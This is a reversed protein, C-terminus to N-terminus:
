QPSGFLVFAAWYYPHDYPRAAARGDPITPRGRRPGVDRTAAQAIQEPSAGTLRNKDENTLARLWAQAERLAALKPLPQGPIYSVGDIQRSSKSEGLLNAYFRSMLLSTATDDVKWLSAVVTEAGAAFFGLPLAMVSDGKAVGRGTDCASLTVLETGKLRGPWQKILEKLTLFGIDDVTPREPKTLALSAEYPRDANGSLGHTALHLFRPPNSVVSERLRVANADDDLLLTVSNGSQELLMAIATAERRMGPLPTLSAGYLRHQDLRSAVASQEDGSRDFFAMSRLGEAPPAQSPVVGMRGTALAVEITQGERWVEVTVPREDPEVGRTTVAEATAQIAPGLDARGALAHEGYRRLVDGRQLGSNDANSGRQVLALLIGSDPYEPEVLAGGFDPSGLVVAGALSTSRQRAVRRRDLAITASSAYAIPADPLLLEMPITHLPGDPIVMISKADALLTRLEDPVLSERASRLVDANIAGAGRTAVSERLARVADRLEQQREKGEAIVASEIGRSSAVLAFVRDDTWVFSVIAEGSALGALIEDSTLPDAIPFLGRLEGFVEATKERLERRRDKILENLEAKVQDERVAAMRAEVERLAVLVDQERAAAAEYRAVRAPEGLSRMAMDLGGAQASSLLDLAARGRGREIVGLAEAARDTDVLLAAYRAAILVLNLTESFAARESAGGIVDIRLLEATALAEGYYPEAEALRGQALLLGGMTSISALTAPHDDGLIRRQGELAEACYPEAEALRGQATLVTGMNNIVALTDPHEDGLLHRFGALAERYYPEAEALPGQAKLVAGMNNISILTLPHDVGLVRRCRALAEVFYPEADTLRGQRWLLAGMTSISALTAPHDDGLIRRQGELAEACYLKAEALRGQATLLIGMNNISILTQPHDDGLVARSGALAEAYYPEADALRGQAKLVAGMNNISILTLPHDVGLVRRRGALAEAHFPEADVFRGKAHLLFGMNNISTLTRQHDDGLVRRRGELAEAYYPEADVLRGQAQLQFGWNNISTLTDPHDDGLVRHRGDLAEAYFPEADALRGQAKLLVGMNNISSLTTRHDDGLVRRFVQLQRETIAHAQAYEGETHLGEVNADSGLVSALEARVQDGLGRLLSVDAIARRADAVEYWEAPDGAADRWRTLGPTNGQHEERISLVREALEIAEDLAADQAEPTEATLGKEQLEEIREEMEGVDAVVEEPLVPRVIHPRLEPPLDKPDPDWEPLDIRFPAEQGGESTAAKQAERRASQDESSDSAQGLATAGMLLSVLLLKLLAVQPTWKTRCSQPATTSHHM